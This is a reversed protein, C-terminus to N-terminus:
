LRKKEELKEITGTTVFEHIKAASSPGIGAVKQKGKGLGIANDETVEYDFGKISEAVKKYSNGAHGNKEKIYLNALETLALFLSANAPHKCIAKSVDTQRQHEKAKDAVFPFEQVIIQILEDPTKTNRHQLLIKGIETIGLREDTPLDLKLEHQSKTCLTYLAKATAKVGPGNSVQWDFTDKVKKQLKSIRKDDQAAFSPASKNEEIQNNIVEEEEESPENQYWPQFRGVKNKSNSYFCSVRAMVEDDFHGPCSVIEGDDNLKLKGKLCSPCNELRGNLHGDVIRQLLIDKVGGVVQRNWRLVDKLNEINCHSYEKYAAAEKREIDSVTSLDISDMEKKMKKKVPKVGEDDEDKVSLKEAIRKWRLLKIHAESKKEDPATAAASSSSTKKPTVAKKSNLGELVEERHDQLLDSKDQLITDVFDEMSLEKMKRPKAFCAVHHWSTFAYKDSNPSPSHTGIRFEDKLIKEKCKKCSAKGSPAREISFTTESM